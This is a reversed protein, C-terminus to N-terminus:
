GKIIIVKSDDDNQYQRRFEKIKEEQLKEFKEPSIKKGKTPPVIIGEEIEGLQIGEAEIKLKGDNLTAELVLGPLGIIGFPGTEASISPTFWVEDEKEEDTSIAKFSLYGKIIKQENTVKWQKEKGESVILFDKGMFHEQSLVKNEKKNHYITKKPTDIKISFAGGGNDINTPAEEKEETKYLSAEDDFYLITNWSQEDPLLGALENKQLSEGEETEMNIKLYMTEKYTVTGSNQANSLFPLSAILIIFLNKM